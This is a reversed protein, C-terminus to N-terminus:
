GNKEEGDASFYRVVKKKSKARTIEAKMGESVTDGFVWVEACKVLMVKGMFLALEEDTMFQPYLLHPAFPIAKKEIAISCYRQANRVNTDTEGRYPSCIYVVPRFGYLSTRRPNKKRGELEPTKEVAENMHDM